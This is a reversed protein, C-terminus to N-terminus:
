DHATVLACCPRNILGHARVRTCDMPELVTSLKQDGSLAELVLLSDFM